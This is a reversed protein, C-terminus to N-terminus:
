PSGPTMTAIATSTVSPRRPFLRPQRLRFRITGTTSARRLPCTSRPTKMPRSPRGRPTSGRMGTPTISMGITNILRTIPEAGLSDLAPAIRPRSVKFGADILLKGYKGTLVAINGGSGELVCIDRRLRNVEIKARSAAQIMTPVIGTEEKVQIMSM